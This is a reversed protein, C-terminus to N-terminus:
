SPFRSMLPHHHNTSLFWVSAKQGGFLSQFFGTAAFLRTAEAGRARGVAHAAGATGALRPGRGNISPQVATNGDVGAATLGGRSCSPAGTTVVFAVTTQLVLALFALVSVTTAM